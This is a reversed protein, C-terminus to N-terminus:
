NQFCIQIEGSLTDKHKFKGWKGCMLDWHM